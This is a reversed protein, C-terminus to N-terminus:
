RCDTLTNFRSIIFRGEDFMDDATNQLAPAAWSIGLFVAVGLAVFMLISFFSVFTARINALLDTFQTAKM